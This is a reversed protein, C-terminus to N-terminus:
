KMNLGNLWFNAGVSFVIKGYFMPDTELQELPWEAFSRHMYSNTGKIVVSAPDKLIYASIKGCFKGNRPRVSDGIGAVNREETPM